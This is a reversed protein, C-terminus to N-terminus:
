VVSWAWIELAHPVLSKSQERIAALNWPGPLEKVRRAIATIWVIKLCNLLAEALQWLAPVDKCQGKVKRLAYKHFEDVRNKGPVYLQLDTQLM